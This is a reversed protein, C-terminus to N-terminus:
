ADSDNNKHNSWGRVFTEVINQHYELVMQTRKLETEMRSKEAERMMEIKTMETRVYGEGLVRIAEVMAMAVNDGREKRGGDRNLASRKKKMTNMNMNMNMNVGKGKGMGSSSGVGGNSGNRAFRTSYRVGDDFQPPPSGFENYRSSTSSKLGFKPNPIEDFGGYNKRSNGAIRIRLGNRQFEKAEKRFSGGNYDEDDDDLDNNDNNNDDDDDDGFGDNMFEDAVVVPSISSAAKGGGGVRGGAGGGGGGGGRGGAPLASDGKEMFDMKSFYVWSSAFKHHPISKARNLEARYRKRLKEMKHRCQVATKPPSVHPCFRHVNDAVDQWHAARLNGRRLSYWKDRYADILGATEDPTWCPPPLRRSTHAPQAPAPLLLPIGMPPEPYDSFSQQQYPPPSSSSAM